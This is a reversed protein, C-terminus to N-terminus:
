HPEGRLSGGLHRVLLGLGVVFAGVVVAALAPGSLVLALLVFALGFLVVGVLLLGVMLVTSARLRRPGQPPESDGAAAYLV